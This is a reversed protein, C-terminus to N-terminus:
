QNNQMSNYATQLLSDPNSYPIDYNLAWTSIGHYHNKILYGVTQKIYLPDPYSVFKYTKRAVRKDKYRVTVWYSHLGAINAPKSFTYPHISSKIKAHQYTGYQAYSDYYPINVLPVHNHKVKIVPQRLGYHHKKDGHYIINMTGYMPLAIVTKDKSLGHQRYYQLTNIISITNYSPRPGGYPATVKGLTADLEAYPVVGGYFTYAMVNAWSIYRAWTSPDAYRKAFKVGIPLDLTIYDNELGAKNMAQRLDKILTPFQKVDTLDNDFFNEWDINIGSLGYQKNSLMKIVSNVFLQRKKTDLFIQDAADNEWHGISAIIKTQLNNKKLWNHITKLNDSNARSVPLTSDDSILLVSYNLVNLHAMAPKYQDLTKEDVPQQALYYFSSLIPKQATGAPKALTSQNITLLFFLTFIISKFIRHM